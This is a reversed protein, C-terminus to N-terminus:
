QPYKWTFAFYQNLKSRLISSIASKFSGISINPSTFSALGSLTGTKNAYILAITRGYYWYFLIHEVRWYCQTLSYHSTSAFSSQPFSKSLNQYILRHKILELSDGFDVTSTYTTIMIIKCRIFSFCDLQAQKQTEFFSKLMVTESFKKIKKCSRKLEHVLQGFITTMFFAIETLFNPWFSKM